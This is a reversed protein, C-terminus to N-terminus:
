VQRARARFQRVKMLNGCAWQRCWCRSLNHSSDLFVWHCDPNACVKLRGPSTGELVEVWSAAIQSVVATWSEHLMVTQLRVGSSSRQAQQIVPTLALFANLEELQTDSIPQGGAVAEFMQRLLSRLAGLAVAALADPPSAVPLQWHRVFAAVWEPNALNDQVGKRGRYDYHESNILDLCLEGESILHVQGHM